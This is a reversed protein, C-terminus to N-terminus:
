KGKWVHIFNLSECTTYSLYIFFQSTKQSVNSTYLKNLTRSEFSLIIYAPLDIAKFQSAEYLETNRPVFFPMVKQSAQYNIENSNTQTQVELQAIRMRIQM